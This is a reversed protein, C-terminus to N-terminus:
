FFIKLRQILRRGLGKVRGLKELSGFDGFKQRNEEIRLALKPGIGPLAEWDQLSMRDPHLPILFAMRTESPTWFRKIEIPKGSESLLELAEGPRLPTLMDSTGEGRFSTNPLTMQIVSLPTPDDYFHHMGQEPFGKGLFVLTGKALSPSEMELAKGSNELRLFEGGAVLLLLLAFVLTGRQSTM